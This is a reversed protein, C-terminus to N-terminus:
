EKKNGCGCPREDEPPGIHGINLIHGMRDKKTQLYFTNSCNAPVEIPVREVIELGYGELGVIKKPNNTMLRIKKIGLDALIQAGIGYDRLDPPFGLLLNAEVTDVGMDQLSYARIKNALGIGRGEQRMYLLVGLGEKEIMRLSHALQEGCDCRMSGFVDGTLCESHVRVLVPKDTAVNGKVVALHHHDDIESEYLKLEFVGFKTPFNVETVCEVLKERKRRYAILDRITILVFGHQHAFERLYSLRGVSGDPALVMCVVGAPKLGAIRALDVAAETHGARALVGGDLAKLTTVHGPKAFDSAKASPDAFLRITAARDEASAGTLTGRIADITVGFWTNRLSKMPHGRYDIDLEAIREAAGAVAILGGSERSMFNIDAATVKEAAMLLNGETDESTDDAVLIMKGERIRELAADITSFDTM